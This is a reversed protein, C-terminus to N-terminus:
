HSIVGTAIPPLQFDKQSDIFVSEDGRTFKMRVVLESVRMKDNFDVSQEPFVIRGGTAYAITQGSGGAVAEGNVTISPYATEGGDYVLVPIIVASVKKDWVNAPVNIKLSVPVKGDRAELVGPTVTYSIQKANEKMQDLSGCAALLAALAVSGILTFITKM